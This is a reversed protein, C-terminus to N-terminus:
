PCVNKYVKQVIYVLPNVGAGAFQVNIMDDFLDMENGNFEIAEGSTLATPPDIPFGNIFALQDGKNVATFGNINEQKKVMGSETIKQPKSTYSKWQM